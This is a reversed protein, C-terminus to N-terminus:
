LVLDLFNTSNPLYNNAEEGNIIQALKLFTTSTIVLCKDIQM